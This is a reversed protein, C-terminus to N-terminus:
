RGVRRVGFAQQMARSRPGDGMIDAVFADVEAGGDPRQRQEVQGARQADEIINVTVQTSGSGGSADANSVVNGRTDPIMYQKGGAGQFVEPGAENVRYLSGPAVPGGYQRGGGFLGLAAPVASALATLGAAAAGGFSAISAAAAAPAYSAAMAAGTAAATAASAAQATQGIVMNKVQEIGLKVLAGVAENLISGALARVADEGNSAGTVLGVLANTAGQELQALSDLLLANWESQKRFNEEQLVRMQEAHATEAQTKLDLYRQDELLKAENLKRLNELELGFRQQEGAIPDVQGLLQKNAEAEKQAQIAAALQKVRAIQDPTAFENLRLLAQAEALERGKLSALSLQTALDTVVTANEKALRAAEAAEKNEEKRTTVSTKRANEARFIEVALREAEAREEATAKTGLKQVAVLKAREEGALAAVAAQEKLTELAKLSEGSGQGGAGGTVPAGEKKQQAVRRNQIALIELNAEGIQRTLSQIGRLNKGDNEQMASLRAQLDARQELLVNLQQQETLNGATLRVGSAVKDILFALTQSFGVAKDLTALAAGFDNTIAQAAQGVTRPLKSFERDVDETRKQIAGLVRDATLEGDLLMKRLEGFPVGLGAAIERALQPINEVVSNFEEARLIGGALGQGLQRLGDAMEQTSSGGITGIKQLTETLRLVQQDTGGLDRLTNTLNEWLKVTDGLASGTTSAIALLAQYNQAGQQASGSLRTIRAELLTFQESLQQVRRLADVTILGAISAALPSLSTSLGQVQRGTDGASKGLRSMGGAADNAAKQMRGAAKDTKDMGTQLRGLHTDAAKSANVLQDTKADVVYYIEGVNEGM